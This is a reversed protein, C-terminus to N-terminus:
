LLVTADEVPQLWAYNSRCVPCFLRKNTKYILQVCSGCLHAGCDSCGTGHTIENYCVCCEPSKETLWKAIILKKYQKANHFGVHDDIRWLLYNCQDHYGLQRFFHDNNSTRKFFFIIDNILSHVYFFEPELTMSETVEVIRYKPFDGRIRSLLM